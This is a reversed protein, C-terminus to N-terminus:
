QLINECESKEHFICCKKSKKRNLCENDVTDSTFTVRKKRPGGRLRLVLVTKTESCQMQGM